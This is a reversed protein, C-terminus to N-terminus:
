KVPWLDGGIQSLASGVKKLEFSITLNDYATKFIGGWVREQFQKQM